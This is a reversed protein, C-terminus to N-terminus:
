FYFNTSASLLQYGASSETHIVPTYSLCQISCNPLYVCVCHENEKFFKIWELYYKILHNHFHLFLM